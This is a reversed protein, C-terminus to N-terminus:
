PHSSCGLSVEVYGDPFTNLVESDLLAHLHSLRPSVQAAEGVHTYYVISLMLLHVAMAAEFPDEFMIFTQEPPPPQTAQRAGADTAGNGQSPQLPKRPKPTSAPEYSLGLAAEALQIADQVDAWMSAAVLMRTRLVRALLAVQNHKQKTAKEELEQVAALAAHVDQASPQPTSTLSRQHSSTSRSKAPTAASTSKTPSMPTTLFSIFALQTCYVIHPPDTPLFSGLLNRLQNRAFKTKQQWHSLQAQLLALQHKYARLSPHKM